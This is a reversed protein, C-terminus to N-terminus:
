AVCSPTDWEGAINLQFNPSFPATWGDTLGGQTKALVADLLMFGGLLRVGEM